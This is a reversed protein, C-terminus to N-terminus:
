ISSTIGKAALAQNISAKLETSNQMLKEAAQKMRSNPWGKTTTHTDLQDLVGQVVQAMASLASVSKSKDFKSLTGTYLEECEEIVTIAEVEISRAGVLKSVISTLTGMAKHDGMSYVMSLADYDSEDAEKRGSLVASAQVVRLARLLRRDSLQVGSQARYESAVNVIDEVMAKPIAVKRVMQTLYNLESYTMIPQSAKTFGDALFTEALEFLISKDTISPTEITIFWRDVFPKLRESDSVFNTTGIATHLPCDSKGFTRENLIGMMSELIGDQARYLEDLFAFHAKPMQGATNHVWEAKARLRAIDVPGFIEEVQTSPMLLKKFVVVEDPKDSDTDPGFLKFIAEALMSKATGGPGVLLVHEKCLLALQIARIQPKRGLITSEISRFGDTFQEILETDFVFSPKKPVKM